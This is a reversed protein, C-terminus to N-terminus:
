VLGASMQALERRDAAARAAARRQPKKPWSLGNVWEELLWAATLVTTISVARPVEPEYHMYGALYKEAPSHLGLRTGVVYAVSEAEFEEVERPLGRRDPWDADPVDGLHGCTIHALEHLLTFFRTKPDHAANVEVLFQVPPFKRASLRNKRPPEPEHLRLAHGYADGGLQVERYEIGRRYLNEQLRRWWDAQLDGRAVLPDLVGEPLDPGDTDKLDYVFEVPGFPRLVVLPHVGSDEQRVHRGFKGEWDQATAAYRILPRQIRLLYANYPAFERMASVFRLTDFYAQSQRYARTDRWLQDLTTLADPKM